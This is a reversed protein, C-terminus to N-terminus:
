ARLDKGDLRKLRGAQWADWARLILAATLEARQRMSSLVLFEDTSHDRGGRPGLGDLVPVGDQALYSAESCGPRFEEGVVQGLEAATEAALAYLEGTAWAELTPSTTRGVIESMSGPVQPLLLIRSMAAEVEEMQAKTNCRSEVDIRAEDPVVNFAVGGEMRGVNVSLADEGTVERPTNLAELLVIKRAADLVASVKDHTVFAAHGAKGRIRASLAVKGKRTRVLKNDPGAKEFVLAFAARPAEATLCARMTRSSKEEDPSFLFRLPLTNGLGRELLALMAFIGVVLGGKMDCTGPGYAIDGECRLRNFPTDAPFVTDMHGSLLIRGPAEEACPFDAILINGADEQRILRTRLGRSSLYSDLFAAVADVGPKNLTGSQIDVLDRLLERMAPEHEAMYETLARM